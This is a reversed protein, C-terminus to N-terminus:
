NSQIINQPADEYESIRLKCLEIIYDETSECMERTATNGKLRGKREIANQLHLRAIRIENPENM